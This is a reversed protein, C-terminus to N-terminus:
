GADWTIMSQRGNSVVLLALLFILLVGGLVGAAVKEAV